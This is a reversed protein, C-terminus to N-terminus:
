KAELRSLATKAQNSNDGSLGQMLSKKYYKISESTDGTKECAEALIFCLEPGRIQREAARKLLPIADAAKNDKLYLRGLEFLLEPDDASLKLGSELEQKQLAANGERGAIQSLVLNVDADSLAAAKARDIYKRAEAIKGAHLECLSQAILAEIDSGNAALAQQALKSAAPLADTRKNDLLVARAELAQSKAEFRKDGAAAHAEQIAEPLLGQKRNLSSLALHALGQPIKDAQSGRTDAETALKLTEEASEFDAKCSKLLGDSLLAFANSPDLSRAAKLSAEAADHKGSHLQCYALMALSDANKSRQSLKEASQTAANFDGKLMQALLLCKLPGASDPYAKVVHNSAEIAEDYAGLQLAESALHQEFEPTIESAQLLKKLETRAQNTKGSRKLNQLVSLKVSQTSPELSAARQTAKEAESDRRLKKYIESLASWAEYSGPNISTVTEFESAAQSLKQASMLAMAYQLHAGQSDPQAACALAAESEAEELKDAQRILITSLLLHLQANHPCKQSWQRLLTAAKDAQNSAFLSAAQSVCGRCAPDDAKSSSGGARTKSAADSAGSFSVLTLATALLRVGLKKVTM